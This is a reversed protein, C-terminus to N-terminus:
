GHTILAEAIKSAKSLVEPSCWNKYLLDDQQLFTSAQFKTTTTILRSAETQPEAWDLSTQILFELSGVVHEVDQRKFECARFILSGKEWEIRPRYNVFERLNKSIKIKKSLEPTLGKLECFALFPPLDRHKICTTPDTTGDKRDTILETLKDQKIFKPLIYMLAITLHFLSYYGAIAGWMYQGCQAAVQAEATFIIAKAYEADAQPWFISEKHIKGEADKMDSDKALNAGEIGGSSNKSKM